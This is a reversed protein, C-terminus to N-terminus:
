LLNLDRARTVADRRTVVGLKRYISRQHTKITNVTVFLDSAIEGAKFMTPLYSLVALERETLPEASPAPTRIPRADGNNAPILDRTFDLHRAVVHRHRAILPQISTGAAVFPRIMGVTQALDIAQDIAILAATDRHTRDSAIAILIKAEVLPARFPPPEAVVPGLLALARDPRDVM